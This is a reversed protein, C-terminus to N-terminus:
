NWLNTFDEYQWLGTNNVQAVERLNNFCNAYSVNPKYEKNMAYGDELLIANLMYAKIDQESSTNVNDDLWVYALTRGFQDTQEQDYSLYLTDIGNLLSKTYDSAYEGYENNKWREPSCSEPTDIGILRVKEETDGTSVVITDGDIVRILTVKELTNSTVSAEEEDSVSTLLNTFFDQIQRGISTIKSMASGDEISTHVNDTTETIAYSLKAKIQNTLETSNGLIYSVIITAIIISTIKKKM